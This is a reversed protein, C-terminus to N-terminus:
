NFIKWLEEVFWYIKDHFLCGEPAKKRFPFLFNPKAKLTGLSKDFLTLAEDSGYLVYPTVNVLSVQKLEKLVDLIKSSLGM